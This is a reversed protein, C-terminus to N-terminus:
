GIVVLHLSGGLAFTQTRNKAMNHGNLPGGTDCIVLMLYPELM